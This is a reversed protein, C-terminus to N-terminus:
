NTMFYSVNSSKFNIVECMLTNFDQLKIAYTIFSKEQFFLALLRGTLISGQGMLTFDTTGKDAKHAAKRSPSPGTTIM